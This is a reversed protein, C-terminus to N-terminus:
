KKLLNSRFCSPYARLLFWNYFLFYHEQVACLIWFSHIFSSQKLMHTQTPDINQLGKLGRSSSGSDPRGTHKSNMCTNVTTHRTIVMFKVCPVTSFSLQLATIMQVLLLLGSYVNVAPLAVVIVKHDITAFSFIFM